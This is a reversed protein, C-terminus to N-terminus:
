PRVETKIATEPPLTESLLEAAANAADQEGPAFVLEVQTFKISYTGFINVAIHIEEPFIKRENLMKELRDRLGSCVAKRTVENFNEQVREYNGSFSEEAAATEVNLKLGIVSSIGTFLFVGTIILSMQKTFKNEPILLRFLATCVAALCVTSLFKM